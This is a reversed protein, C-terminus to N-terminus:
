IRNLMMMKPVRQSNLYDPIYSNINVPYPEPIDYDYRELLNSDFVVSADQTVRSGVARLIDQGIPEEYGTTHYDQILKQIQVPSLSYCIEAIAQVDQVTEKRLQLLKVAQALPELPRTVHKLTHRQCWAELCSINHQIQMGRKWSNFHRRMILDNFASIGILRLLESVGQEIVGPALFYGQMTQYAQDIFGVVDEAGLAHISEFRDNEKFGPFGQSEVMAPVVMPELEKKLARMVRYYVIEELQELEAKIKGLCREPVAGSEMSCVLSLLEHTNSLWYACPVFAEQEVFSACEIDIAQVVASILRESESYLGLEWSHAISQSVLHVSFFVQERSGRGAPVVRVTQILETMEKTLSEIETQLIRAVTSPSPQEFREQKPVMHEAQAFVIKKQQLGTIMKPTRRDPRESRHSGYKKLTQSLQSKLSLIQSKLAAVDTDEEELAQSSPLSFENVNKKETQSQNMWTNVQTELDELPAREVKKPAQHDITRMPLSRQTEIPAPKPVSKPEPPAAKGQDRYDALKKQALLGRICAQLQIMHKRRTLFQHRMVRTRCVAQLRAIFRCQNLYRQRERWGRWAAQIRVAAKTKRAMALRLLGVKQRAVRQLKDILTLAEVYRRRALFRKANKQILITSADWRERRCKELYALQGARFFLKTLGVQFKDKDKISAELILNCLERIDPNKCKFWHKSSILAYFRDVFDQFEWRSPYGLCSIRITELVGCARLQSLVMNAEFGWAEKAENPKICRIYHVNTKNITDMLSILSLKFISGLTPKKAVAMGVKKPSSKVEQSNAAATATQLMDVLFPSQATQLLNLLEDPVTDKNKDLFGESDYEVEHAYHCVTFSSNSFRPKKFYEKYKPDTFSSFLKNCFGQDTGSPM